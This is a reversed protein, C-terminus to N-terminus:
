TLFYYYYYYYDYSPNHVHLVCLEVVKPQLYCSAGLKLGTCKSPSHSFVIIIVIAIVIVIIYRVNLQSAHAQHVKILSTTMIPMNPKTYKYGMTVKITHEEEWEIIIIIMRLTM